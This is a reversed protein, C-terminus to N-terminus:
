TGGNISGSSNGGTSNIVRVKSKGGLWAVWRSKGEAAVRERPPILPNVKRRRRPQSMSIEDEAMDDEHLHDTMSSSFNLLCDKLNVRGPHKVYSRRIECIIAALYYDLKEHTAWRRDLWEKWALM